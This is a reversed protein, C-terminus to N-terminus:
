RQVPTWSGDPRPLSADTRDDPPDSRLFGYVNVKNRGFQNSVLVLYEIVRGPAVRDAFLHTHEYDIEVQAPLNLGGPMNGASGFFLLLTGDPDFIQINEFAADVVYVRGERDVALGKPRALQGINRGLSGYQRLVRGDPDFKVIRFNGTDSVYLNGDADVELNTPFFLEGEGSGKRGVRGVEKGSEKDLVVVRGNQVDTVYIREEHLAIDVPSWIDKNGFATVYDNQADYVMVRGRGIDTVYRTGDAGVAINIPKQLRGPKRDGLMSVSRARLDLILVAARKSDCVFIQEDHTAIGYPKVIEPDKTEGVVLREFFGPGGTVDTLTTYTALHQIRPQEPLDPYFVPPHVSSTRAGGFPLGPVVCGTSFM